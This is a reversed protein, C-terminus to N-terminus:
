ASAANTLATEADAVSDYSMLLNDVGSVKFLTAVRDNVGVLAYKRGERRCSAHFGLISGLAGSDMYPVDTLDIITVATAHSRITGQFQFVADLTFPGSLKLVRSGESTGPLLEINLNDV